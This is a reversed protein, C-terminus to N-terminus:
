PPASFYADNLVVDVTFHRTAELYRQASLDKRIEPTAEQVSLRKKGIMKYIFHGGGPDSLVESVEGPRLDMVREHTPPLTARRVNKLGTSPATGPVGAAVYAEKELEDPEAGRLAEARMETAVRLMEGESHLRARNVRPIFIRAFTAQEFASLNKQYYAQLEADSINDADDRLARSLDQSLLQLRAYRMEQEFAPTKDLGRAEAAAAMKLMRGYATAVKLRLEPPMQPQLAEALREFQERTIVTRCTASKSSVHACLGNVTIVAADAAPRGLIASTALVALAAIM